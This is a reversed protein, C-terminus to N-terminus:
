APEQGAPQRAALAAKLADVFYGFERMGITGWTTRFEDMEKALAELADGQGSPGVMMRVIPSPANNAAHPARPSSYLEVGVGPHEGNAWEIRPSYGGTDRYEGVIKGVPEQNQRIQNALDVIAQAAEVNTCGEGLKIEGEKTIILVPKTQNEAIRFQIHENQM